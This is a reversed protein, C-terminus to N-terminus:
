SSGMRQQSTQDINSILHVDIFRLNKMQFQQLNNYQLSFELVVTAVSFYINLFAIISPKRFLLHDLNLIKLLECTGFVTKGLM